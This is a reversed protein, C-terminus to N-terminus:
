NLIQVHTCALNHGVRQFGMSQLGAPEETRLIEWALISSHTAMEEELPDEQGQISSLDGIDRANVPSNKVVLAIQSARLLQSLCITCCLHSPIFAFGFNLLPRKWFQKAFVWLSIMLVTFSIPNFTIFIFVDSYCVLTKMRKKRWSTSALITWFYVYSNGNSLSCLELCGKSKFTTAKM